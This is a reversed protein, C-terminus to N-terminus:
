YKLVVLEDNDVGGLGGDDIEEPGDVQDIMQKTKDM